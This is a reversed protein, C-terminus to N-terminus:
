YAIRLIEGKVGEWNGLVKEVILHSVDERRITYANKLYDSAFRYADPKEETVTCPGDKLLAARVVVVRDKLWGNEGAREEWGPPLVSDRVKEEAGGEPWPFGAAHAVVRELGLKDAHPSALAYKYFSKLLCPLNDHGEKTIGTSSVIVFNPPNSAIQPTSKLASLLTLM